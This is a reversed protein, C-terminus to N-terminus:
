MYRGITLGRPTPLDCVHSITGSMQLEDLGVRITSMRSDHLAWVCRVSAFDRFRSIESCRLDLKADFYVFDVPEEPTFDLSHILHVTVPLGHTRLRAENFNVVDVELSDLHGVGRLALGMARTTYGKYAGTEIAHRPRLMTCMAALFQAVETETSASDPANWLEPEPCDGSAPTWRSERM